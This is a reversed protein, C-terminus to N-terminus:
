GGGRLPDHGPFARGERESRLRRELGLIEQAVCRLGYILRARASGICDALAAARLPPACGIFAAREIRRRKRAFEELRKKRGKPDLIRLAEQIRSKAVTIGWSTLTGRIADYGYGDGGLIAASEVFNLM